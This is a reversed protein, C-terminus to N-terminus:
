QTLVVGAEASWNLWVRDGAVIPHETNRTRNAVAARMDFGNDLRVRYVSMGGLYGVDAVHGTFSNESGAKGAESEIQIKEPRLGVCIASGAAIDAQTAVLLRGGALGEIMLHGLGSSAVRGDILNIDGVFGAVWRSAPQEYVEAPPAVQVLNGANMVGIRSAVTM